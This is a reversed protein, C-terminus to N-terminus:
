LDEDQHHISASIPFGNGMGHFVLWASASFGISFMSKAQLRVVVFKDRSFYQSIKAGPAYDNCMEADWGEPWGYKTMCGLETWNRNAYGVVDSFIVANVGYNYGEVCIRYMVESQAPINTKIHVASLPGWRKTLKPRQTCTIFDRYVKLKSTVRHPLYVHLTEPTASFFSVDIGSADLAKLLQIAIPRTTDRLLLGDIHLAECSSISDITRILEDGEGAAAAGGGSSRIPSCADLTDNPGGGTTTSGGTMSMMELMQKAKKHLGHKSSSLSGAQAEAQLASVKDILKKTCRFCTTSHTRQTDFLAALVRAAVFALTVGDDVPLTSIHEYAGETRTVSCLAVVLDMVDDDVVRSEFVLKIQALFHRLHTARLSRGSTALEHIFLPIVRPPVSSDDAM